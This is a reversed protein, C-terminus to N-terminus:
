NFDLKKAWLKLKKPMKHLLKWIFYIALAAGITDFIVDRLTPERGPTFSQHFEDTAGYLVSTLIALYGAKKNDYGSKLFGRYMLLSLIAYVIIHATKKVFFDQWHIESTGPVTRSSSIFILCAWLIPPLWYKILRKLKSM